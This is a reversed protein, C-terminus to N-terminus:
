RSATMSQDSCMNTSYRGGRISELADLIPHHTLKPIQGDSRKTAEAQALASVCAEHDLGARRASRRLPSWRCALVQDPHPCLGQRRRALGVLRSSPRCPERRWSSRSPVCRPQVSPREHVSSGSRRPGEKWDRQRLGRLEAGSHALSCLDFWPRRVLCARRQSRRPPPAGPVPPHWAGLARGELLGQARQATGRDPHRHRRM